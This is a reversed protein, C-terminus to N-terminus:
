RKWGKGKTDTSMKPWVDRSTTVPIPCCGIALCWDRHASIQTMAEENILLISQGAGGQRIAQIFDCKTYTRTHCPIWTTQFPMHICISAYHHMHNSIDLLYVDNFFSGADESYTYINPKQYRSSIAGWMGVAWGCKRLTVSNWPIESHWFPAM